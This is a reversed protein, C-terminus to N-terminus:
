RNHRTLWDQTSAVGTIESHLLALILDHTLLTNFWPEFPVGASQGPFHVLFPVRRDRTGNVMQSARFFHDSSLLVIVSNWTGAQEMQARLEAITKDVLALADPYASPSNARTLLGAARDYIYPPHPVNLHLLTLQFTPDTVARKSWQLLEGYTHRHKLVSLSQGFPSFLATEFLARPQTLLASAFSAGGSNWLTGTEQWWCDSVYEAFIRCYPLYWGFAAANMGAHRVDSFLNPEDGFRQKTGDEYELLLTNADISTTNRVVRGEILSPMSLITYGAPPLAHTAFLSEGRLRDLAPLALGAPRADFTLRQDWEDFIIWLVRPGSTHQLHNAHPPDNLATRTAAKYLSTGFTVACIPLLALLLPPAARRIAQHYRALLALIALGALICILQQSDVLQLLTLRPVTGAIASQASMALLVCALPPELSRLLSPARRFLADLGVLLAAFLLVGCIAAAHEGWNALTKMGFQPAQRLDLLRRWLPSYYCLNAFSLAALYRRVM